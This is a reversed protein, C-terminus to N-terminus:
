TPNETGMAFPSGDSGNKAIYDELKQLKDKVNNFDEETGHRKMMIPFWASMIAEAMPIAMRLLARKVPDSPLLSYGQTPFAEEAYEMIIKSELIITGDPLEYIPVLGGNIDIHWKTKKGLDVEVRQYQVNHAALAMRAKEVFPCLTHGYMRPYNKNLAPKEQDAEAVYLRTLDQTHDAM